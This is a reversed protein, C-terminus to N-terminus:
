KRMEEERWADGLRGEMRFKERERVSGSLRASESAIENRREEEWLREGM